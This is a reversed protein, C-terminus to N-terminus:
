HVVLTQIDVCRKREAPRSDVITKLPEQSRDMEHGDLLGAQALEDNDKDFSEQQLTKVKERTTRKNEEDDRKKKAKEEKERTVGALSRWKPTGLAEMADHWPHRTANEKRTQPAM